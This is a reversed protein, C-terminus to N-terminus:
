IGSLLINLAEVLLVVKQCLVSVGHNGATRSPKTNTTHVGHKDNGDAFGREASRTCTKWPNALLLLFLRFFSSTDGLTSSRGRQRQVTAHTHTRKNLKATHHARPERPVVTRFRMQASLVWNRAETSPSSPPWESPALLASLRNASPVSETQSQGQALVSMIRVSLNIQVKYWVLFSHTLLVDSGM